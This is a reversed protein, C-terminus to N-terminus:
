RRRSRDRWRRLRAAGDPALIFSLGFGAVFGAIDAIWDKAGGGMISFVLQLGVLIGIMQFAQARNQGTSEYFLLMVFTFAGILGYIAPYMGLLPMREDVLMGYALAGAMSSLLMIMLVARLAFREAVFKGMALLLVAALLAHMINQHVFPYTVFRWLGEVPWNGTQRMWEFVTDFFGFREIATIRWGVGAGGGAFGAAGAQFVIEIGGILAVLAVIVPPIDNFPSANHDPDFM